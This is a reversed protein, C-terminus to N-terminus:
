LPQAAKLSHTRWLLWAAVGVAAGGLHAFAAVDSVGLKQEFALLLQLVIWVLLGGYAPFHIWRLYFGYGFLIGLRARPFRLAYYAIVGSIGGSAGICPAMSHPNGAVHLLTGFLAAAAM